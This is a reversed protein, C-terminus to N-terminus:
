LLVTFKYFSKVLDSTKCIKGISVKREFNKIFLLTQENLSIKNSM